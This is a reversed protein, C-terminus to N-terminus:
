SRYDPQGPTSPDSVRHPAPTATRPVASVAREPSHGARLGLSDRVEPVKSYPRASTAIENLRKQLRASALDTITALTETLLSCAKGSVDAEDRAGNAEAERLAM